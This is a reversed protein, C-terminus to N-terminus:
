RAAGPVNWRQRALEVDGLLRQFRSQWTLLWGSPARQEASQFLTVTALSEQCLGRGEVLRNSQEYYLCMGQLAGALRNVDAQMAASAWASRLDNIKHMM